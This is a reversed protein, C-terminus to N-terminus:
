KRISFRSRWYPSAFFIKKHWSITLKKSLLDERINLFFRKKELNTWKPRLFEELYEIM